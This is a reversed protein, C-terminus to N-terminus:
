HEVHWWPLHHLCTTNAISVWGVSGSPPEPSQARGNGGSVSQAEVDVVSGDDKRKKRANVDKGAPVSWLRM